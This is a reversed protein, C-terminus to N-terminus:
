IMREEGEARKWSSELVVLSMSKRFEKQKGINHKEDCINKYEMSKNSKLLSDLFSAVVVFSLQIELIYLLGGGLVATINSM